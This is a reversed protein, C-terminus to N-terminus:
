CVPTWIKSISDVYDGQIARASRMQRTIMWTGMCHYPRACKILTTISSITAKFVLSITHLHPGDGIVLDARVKYTSCSGYGAIGVSQALQLSAKLANWYVPTVRDIGLRIGVLILVPHFGGNGSKALRLFSDEYVDAGDRSLYVKLGTGVYEQSLARIVFHTEALKSHPNTKNKSSAALRQQLDLGNELTNAAPQLATVSLDTYLFLHRLITPLYRFSKHRGSGKLEM